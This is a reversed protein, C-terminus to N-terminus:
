VIGGFLVAVRLGPQNDAFILTAQHRKVIAAVLSLGLGIGETTRSTDLRYFPRLVNEREQPPIGPGTDAVALELKDVVLKGQVAIRAGKPSHRIANDVLNVIMQTLLEQDGSISIDPDIDAVLSQGCDEAVPSFDDVIGALLKSVDVVSGPVDSDGAEIQAIRLLASFTDLITDVQTISSDLAQHLEEVSFIRRRAHELRQRHRTLPTRLEHAIDNSVQLMNRMLEEIRDLMGNVSAALHDFEDDTGRLPVRQSLDHGVIAQATRSVTEVRRLMANSIIVGGLIALFLTIAIGFGFTRFILQEMERLVPADQGILLYDGSALDYGHARVQRMRGDLFLELMLAGFRPVRADINGALKDGAANQLLYVPRLDARQRLHNEVIAPLRSDGAALAEDQISKFDAEIESIEDQAAYDTALWYTTAFLTLVSAIFLGAYLLTLRFSSTRILRIPRVFVIGRM